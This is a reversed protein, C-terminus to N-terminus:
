VAQAFVIGAQILGVLGGLVGGIVILTWEDEDFISRQLREFEPKPMTAIRNRVLQAVGLKAHVVEDIEERIEPLRRGLHSVLLVQVERVQEDTVEAETLMAVVPRQEDIAATLRRLLM